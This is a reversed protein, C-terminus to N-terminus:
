PNNHAVTHSLQDGIIRSRWLLATKTDRVAAAAIFAGRAAASSHVLTWSREFRQLALPGDGDKLAKIGGVLNFKGALQINRLSNLDGGCRRCRDATQNPKGCVPCQLVIDTM